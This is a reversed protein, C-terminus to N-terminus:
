PTFAGWIQTIQLSGSRVAPTKAKANGSGRHFGIKFFQEFEWSRKSVFYHSQRLRFQNILYNFNNLAMRRPLSKEGSTFGLLLPM